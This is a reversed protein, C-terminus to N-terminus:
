RKAWSWGTIRWGAESKLLAVTLTSGVERVPKRQKKFAYNAPVVVYARDATIDVHRPQGLTVVGDTIGNKEADATYDAIWRSFAGAGHWEHPPFEDLICMDDTCTAAATRTDGKNFADVFGKVTGIVDAREAAVGPGAALASLVLAVLLKCM